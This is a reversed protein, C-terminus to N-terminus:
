LAKKDEERVYGFIWERYRGPFQRKETRQQLSISRREAHVMMIKLLRGM